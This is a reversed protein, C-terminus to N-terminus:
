VGINFKINRSGVFMIDSSAVVTITGNTACYCSLHIPEMEAEDSNFVVWGRILHTTLVSANTINISISLVPKTGFNVSQTFGIGSENQLALIADNAHTHQVAHDVTVMTDTSVPNTFTDLSTPYNTAM